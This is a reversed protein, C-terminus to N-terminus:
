FFGTSPLLACTAAPRHTSVKGHRKSNLWTGIYVEGGSYTHKGQPVVSAHAFWGNQQEPPMGAADEVCAIAQVPLASAGVGYWQVCQGLQGLWSGGGVGVRAYGCGVRRRPRRTHHTCVPPCAWCLVPLPSASALMMCVLPVPHQVSSGVCALGRPHRMAALLVVALLRCDARVQGNVKDDKFEGVYVDGCGQTLKGQGCRQDSVWAGEFVAGDSYTCKGQTRTRALMTYEPAPQKLARERTTLARPLAQRM